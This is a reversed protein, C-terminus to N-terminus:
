LATTNSPPAIHSARAPNVPHWDGRNDRFFWEGERKQRAQLYATWEFDRGDDFYPPNAIDYWCQIFRGLSGKPPMPVPRGAYDLSFDKSSCLIKAATFCCREFHCQQLTVLDVSTIRKCDYFVCSSFMYNSGLSGIDIEAYNFNVKFFRLNPEGRFYKFAGPTMWEAFWGGEYKQTKFGRVPRWYKENVTYYSEDEVVADLCELEVTSRLGVDTGHTLLECESLANPRRANSKSNKRWNSAVANMANTAFRKRPDAVLIELVAIGALQESEDESNLLRTGEVLHQAYAVDRDADQKEAQLNLTNEMITGRWILTCFTAFGSLGLAVSSIMSMADPTFKAQRIAEEIGVILWVITATAFIIAFLKATDGFDWNEKGEM